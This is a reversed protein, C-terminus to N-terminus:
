GQAVTSDPINAKAVDDIHLCDSLTVYQANYPEPIVRGNCTTSGATVEVLVGGFTKGNNLVVVRDGIKAPRSNKFHM